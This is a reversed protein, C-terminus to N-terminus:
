EGRRYAEIEAAIQEDTLPHDAHLAQTEQCLRKFEEALRVREPDIPKTKSNEREKRYNRIKEKLLAKASETGKVYDPLIIEDEQKELLQFAKAIVEQPSNYKGTKLQKDLFQEQEPTLTIQRM